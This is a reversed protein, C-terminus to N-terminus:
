KNAEVAANLINMLKAQEEPSLSLMKLAADKLEPSELAEKELKEKWSMVPALMVKSLYGNATLPYGEKGANLNNDADVTKDIYAVFEDPVTLEYTKSFCVAIDFGLFVIWVIGLMIWNKM